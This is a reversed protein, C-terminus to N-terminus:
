LCWHAPLRWTNGIAGQLESALNIKGIVNQSSALTEESNLTHAALRQRNDKLETALSKEGIASQRPSLMKAKPV